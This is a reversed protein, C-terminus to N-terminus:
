FPTRVQIHKINEFFDVEPDSSSLVKMDSMPTKDFDKVIKALIGIFETRVIQQLYNLKICNFNCFRLLPLFIGSCIILCVSFMLCLGRHSRLICVDGCIATIIRRLYMNKM